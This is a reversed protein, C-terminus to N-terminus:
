YSRSTGATGLVTFGIVVIVIAILLEAFGIVIAAIALGGGREGTRRIQSLAVFGLIAGVVSFVFAMVFAIIAMVNYPPPAGYEDASPHPAPQSM